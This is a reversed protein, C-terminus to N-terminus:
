ARGKYSMGQGDIATPASPTPETRRARARQAKDVTPRKHVCWHATTPLLVLLLLPLLVLLLPPLLVLLPLLLPLYWASLVPV